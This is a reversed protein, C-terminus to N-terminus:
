LTCGEERKVSGEVANEFRLPHNSPFIPTIKQMLPPPNYNKCLFYVLFSFDSINLSLFTKYVFNKKDTM